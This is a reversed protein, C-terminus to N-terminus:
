ESKVSDEKQPKKNQPPQVGNDKIDEKINEKNTSNQTKRRRNNPRRRPRETKNKNDKVVDKDNKNETKTDNEDSKSRTHNRKIPRKSKDKQLNMEDRKAHITGENDVIYFGEKVVWQVCALDEINSFGRKNLENKLWQESQKSDALDEERIAGNTVLLYTEPCDKRKFITFSGDTEYLVNDIDLLSFVGLARLKAILQEVTLNNRKLCELNLKGKKIVFETKGHILHGLANNKSLFRIILNIITWVGFAFLMKLIIIYGVTYITGGVLTGLVIMNIVNMPSLQVLQTKGSSRLYLLVCVMGIVLKVAIQLYEGM